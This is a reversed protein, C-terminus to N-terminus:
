RITGPAALKPASERPPRAGDEALKGVLSSLKEMVCDTCMGYNKAPEGAVMGFQLSLECNCWACVHM